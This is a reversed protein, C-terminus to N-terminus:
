NGNGGEVKCNSMFFSFLDQLLHPQHKAEEVYGRFFAERFWGFASEINNKPVNRIV